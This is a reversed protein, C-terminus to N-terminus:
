VCEGQNNALASNAAKATSVRGGKNDGRSVRLLEEASVGEGDDDDEDEDSEDENPDEDDEDKEGM